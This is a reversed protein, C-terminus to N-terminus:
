NNKGRKILVTNITCFYSEIETMREKEPKNLYLQCFNYIYVSYLM